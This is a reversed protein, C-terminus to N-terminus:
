ILPASDLHGLDFECHMCFRTFPLRLNTQGWKSDAYFLLGCQPCESLRVRWLSAVVLALWAVLLPTGLNQPTGLFFVVFGFPLYGAVWFM